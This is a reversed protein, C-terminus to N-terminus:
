VGEFIATSHGAAVRRHREPDMRAQTNVVCPRVALGRRIMLVCESHAGSLESMTQRLMERRDDCVFFRPLIPKACISGGDIM